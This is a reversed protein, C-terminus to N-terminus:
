MVKLSVTCLNFGQRPTQVQRDRFYFKQFVNASSWDATSLIQQTVGALSAASSSTGHTSHASTDVGSPTLVSKLWQAISSSVVPSHPKKISLFLQEQESKVRFSTTVAEYRQLCKVPCLLNNLFVHFEIPTPLNDLSSQKALGTPYFTVKDNSFVWHSISFKTLDSTHSAICLALLIALKWTLKHLPLSQNDGWSAM